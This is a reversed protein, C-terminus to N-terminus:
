TVGVTSGIWDERTNRASNFRIADQVENGCGDVTMSRMVVNRDVVSRM